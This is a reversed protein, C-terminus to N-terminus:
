LPPRDAAHRDALWGGHRLPHEDGPARDRGGSLHERVHGRDGVAVGRHLLGAVPHAPRPFPDDAHGLPRPRIARRRIGRGATAPREPGQRLIPRPLLAAPVRRDPRAGGHRAAFIQPARAPRPRIGRKAHHQLIRDLQHRGRERQDHVPRRRRHHHRQLHLSGILHMPISVEVVDAGLSELRRVAAMVKQDVVTESAPLGLDQWPGQAFGEKVVGIRMGAIGRELAATYDRVYDHPIVGRQRPDLPDPGALVSLMRAVGETSNCMPGVHDLTMEIMMCGTYPVLGYTPKLGYVGTWAAPIRISGGQDGGLAMDVQGTALVVASGASSGGAWHTPKHPNRVPGLACMQSGGPEEANAKGVIVAGADLLRTVVTADIDPVYGELVQLGAMMPVGAVCIVDKVAIREGKLPGSDAGLIDTRWYWGNCPNDAAAPRYGPSRPYKVPPKIEPLGELRRYAPMGRGILKAYTAVEEASLELDLGQALELIQQASPAKPGIPM